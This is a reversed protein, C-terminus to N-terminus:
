RPMTGLFGESVRPTASRRGVGPGTKDIPAARGRTAETPSGRGARAVKEGRGPSRLRVAMDPSIDYGRFNDALKQQEVAALQCGQNMQGRSANLQRLQPLLLAAGLGSLSRNQILWAHEADIFISSGRDGDAETRILTGTM